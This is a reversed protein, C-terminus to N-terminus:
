FLDGIGLCDYVSHIMGVIAAKLVEKENLNSSKQGLSRYRALFSPYHFGLIRSFLLVLMLRPDVTGALEALQAVALTPAALISVIGTAPEISMFTLMTSLGSEIM